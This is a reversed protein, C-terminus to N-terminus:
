IGRSEGCHHHVVQLRGPALWTNGIGPVQFEMIFRGIFSVKSKNNLQKLIVKDHMEELDRCRSRRWRAVFCAASLENAYNIM